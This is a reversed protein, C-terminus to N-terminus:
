YVVLKHLKVLFMEVYTCVCIESMAELRGCRYIPEQRM